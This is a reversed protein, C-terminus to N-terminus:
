LIINNYFVIHLCVRRSTGWHESAKELGTPTGVAGGTRSCLSRGFVMLMIDNYLVLDFLLLDTIRVDNYM